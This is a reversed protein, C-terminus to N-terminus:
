TEISIGVKESWIKWSESKDIVEAIQNLQLIEELASLYGQVSNPSVLMGTKGQIVQESIGGLRPAIVYTGVSNALSILGSQSAEDHTLLLIKSKSLVEVFRELSLWGKEEELEHIVELDNLTLNANQSSLFVSLPKEFNKLIELGLNQNKYIKNRGLISVDYVRENWPMSERVPSILPLVEGDWNFKQLASDRVFESLFILNHNKKV